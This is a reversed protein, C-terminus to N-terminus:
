NVARPLRTCEAHGERLKVMKDGGSTLRCMEVEKGAPVPKACTIQPNNNYKTTQFRCTVFCSADGALSNTLTISAVDDGPLIVCSFPVSEALAPAALLGLWLLGVALGLALGLKKGLGVLPFLQRDAPRQRM